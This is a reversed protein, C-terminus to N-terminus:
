KSETVTTMWIAQCDNCRYQVQYVVAATVHIGDDAARHVHTLASQPEKKVIGM